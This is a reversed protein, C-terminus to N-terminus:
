RSGAFVEFLGCCGKWSSTRQVSLPAQPVPTQNEFSGQIEPDKLHGVGNRTAAIPSDSPPLAKDEEDKITYSVVNSSEGHSENPILVADDTFARIESHSESVVPKDLYEFTEEISPVECVYVVEEVVMAPLPEDEAVEVAENVEEAKASNLVVEAKEVHIKEDDSSSSISSGDSSGEAMNHVEVTLDRSELVEDSKLERTIEVRGEDEEEVKEIGVEETGVKEVAGGEEADILRVPSSETEVAGGEETFSQGGSRIPDQSAPSSIEDGDSEQEKLEDGGNFNTAESGSPAEQEKKKKAAAKRRKSGSPM